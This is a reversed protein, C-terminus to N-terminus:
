IFIGWVFSLVLSVVVPIICSTVCVDWYSEKHTCHSVALLTLVAGNHPLTDLGGSALSAIRHLYEPSMGLTAAKALFDGGLAELAITLGGTASGTAGALVNVAVAESFLISGPMNLMAGKLLAFGPVVKVVSGFGVACATNMIATVSGAAGENIAGALKKFQYANMLYVVVIGALLAVVIAQDSTLEALGANKLIGPVVNLTLVVVVLPLLGSLWHWGPHASQDYEAHKHNPDAAFHLGKKRASRIRRDLYIYGPVGILVAAILGMLPAAAADTGYFNTPILNQVQPSGPLATMTIGFAGFAIAGPLLTRPIDAERYIAYGMPYVVFVVVFLSVGGYTMLLCPLVVALLAFRSGILQVLKNALAQAAGTIDMIKGFVAGLFFMPLYTKVFGAVGAMYDGLYTNLLNLGGLVAVVIACVPAVWIISHGKFALWILLILGLAIGLLSIIDSM